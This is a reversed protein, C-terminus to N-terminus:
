AAVFVHAAKAQSCRGEEPLLVRLKKPVYGEWDLVGCTEHQALRVGLELLPCMFWARSVRYDSMPM